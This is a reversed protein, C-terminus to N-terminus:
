EALDLCTLTVAASSGADISDAATSSARLLPQPPMSPLISFFGDCPRHSSRRPRCSTLRGPRCPRDLCASPCHRGLYREPVVVRDDRGSPGPMHSHYKFHHPHGPWLDHVQERLTGMPPRATIYPHARSRGDQYGFPGPHTLAAGTSTRIHSTKSM